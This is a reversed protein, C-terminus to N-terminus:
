VRINTNNKLSILDHIDPRFSKIKWNDRSPHVRNTLLVTICGSDPDMWFSTGTFGLHGLGARSFLRGASSNEGSPMDFGAARAFGPLPKTFARLIAPDLVKPDGHGIAKLIECCLRYVSLADGFLGAHGEVGGAAWANEDEVEGRILKGRWPCRSTAAVCPPIGRFTERGSLLGGGYRNDLDVYFLVEIELPDYICDYVFRDLRQGSLIEVVWALLIYGLDSYIEKTGPPAELPETLIMERLQKRADPGPGALTKFYARHAPLGSTHRLLMDMSISAKGTERFGPLIDGVPTNLSVRGMRVLEAMALTTALPKTLSALDFICAPEVSEGTILDAVGYARHFMIRSVDGWLLVAGPFVGDEVARSMATDIDTFMDATNM